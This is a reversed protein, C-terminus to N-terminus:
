DRKIAIQSMVHISQSRRQEDPEGRWFGGFLFLLPVMNKYSAPLDLMNSLIVQHIKSALNTTKNHGM